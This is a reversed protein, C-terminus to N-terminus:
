LNKVLESYHPLFPVSVIRGKEIWLTKIESEGAICVFLAKLAENYGFAQRIAAESLPVSKCEAILLPVLGKISKAYCVLDFRRKPDSSINPLSGIEKEVAILNKPFALESVMKQVLKQRVFEEPTAVVWKKRIPCHIRGSSM